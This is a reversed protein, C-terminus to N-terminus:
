NAHEANIRCINRVASELDCQSWNGELNWRPPISLGRAKLGDIAAQVFTHADSHTLSVSVFKISKEDRTITWDTQKLAEINKDAAHLAHDYSFSVEFVWCAEDVDYFNREAYFDLAGIRFANPLFETPVDVDRTAQIARVVVDEHDRNRSTFQKSLHLKAKMLEGALLM